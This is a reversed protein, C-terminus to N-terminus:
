AIDQLASGLDELLKQPTQPGNKKNAGFLSKDGGAMDVATVHGHFPRLQDRSTATMLELNLRKDLSRLVASFYIKARPDDAQYDSILM